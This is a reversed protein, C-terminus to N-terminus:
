FNGIPDIVWFNESSGGEYSGRDIAKM